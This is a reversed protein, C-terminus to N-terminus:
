LDDVNARYGVGRVTEIRSGWEQLKKRLGFVHTDITRGTVNVGEGQTVEILQDRTLVCGRQQAMAALLKYESPTLHLEQEFLRVEHKGFHIYLGAVNFENKQDLPIDLFSQRRILARVRATFVSLQFPKSLFDDAGSELGQVIDSEETKATVMLILASPQFRKIDPILALGDKQPLMWDLIILTFQELGMVKLAEEASGVATVTFQKRKLHLSMLDRIEIEDEVILVNM